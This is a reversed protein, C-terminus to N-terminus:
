NWIKNEYYDKVPVKDDSTTAYMITHNQQDLATLLRGELIWPSLSELFESKDYGDYYATECFNGDHWQLLSYSYKKKNNEDTDTYVELMGYNGDLDVVSIEANKSSNMSLIREYDTGMTGQSCNISLMLSAKNELVALDPAEIANILSEYSDSRLYIYLRDYGFKDKDFDGYGGYLSYIYARNEDSADYECVGDNDKDLFIQLFNSSDRSFSINQATEDTIFYEASVGRTDPLFFSISTGFFGSSSHIELIEEDAKYSLNEIDQPLNIILVQEDKDNNSFNRTIKVEMPNASQIAYTGSNCLSAFYERDTLNDFSHAFIQNGKKYYNSTSDESVSLSDYEPYGTLTINEEGNEYFTVKQGPIKNAINVVIGRYEMSLDFYKEEDIRYFINRLSGLTSGGAFAWVGMIMLILVAIGAMVKSRKNIKGLQLIREKFEAMGGNFGTSCYILDRTRGGTAVSLITNGYEKAEEKGIKRLVGADCALEGDRASVFAAVWVFPDFWYVCLLAARVVAWIHDLHCFHTYEHLLIYNEDVGTDSQLYIAPRLFGYLCPTKVLDSQYVKLKRYDKLYVRTMCLKRYFIINSFIIVFAFLCTGTLWFAKVVPGLSVGETDKAAKDKATNESENNLNDNNVATPVNEPESHMDSVDPKVADTKKASPSKDSKWDSVISDDSKNEVSMSDHHSMSSLSSICESMAPIHSFPMGPVILRVAVILWLAYQVNKSIRGITIFRIILICIILISTNLIIGAM